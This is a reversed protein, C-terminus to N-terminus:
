PRCPFQLFPWWTSTMGENWKENLYSLRFLHFIIAASMLSLTILSASLVFWVVLRQFKTQSTLLILLLWRASLSRGKLVFVVCVDTLETSSRMLPSTSCTPEETFPLSVLLLKLYNVSAMVLISTLLIEKTNLLLTETFSSRKWPKLLLASFINMTIISLSQM